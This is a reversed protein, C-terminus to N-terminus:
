GGICSVFPRLTLHYDRGRTLDDGAPITGAGGIHIQVESKSTKGLKGDPNRAAKRSTM